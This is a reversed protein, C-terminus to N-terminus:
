RPALAATAAGGDELLWRALMGYGALNLHKRDRAALLPSLQGEPTTLPARETKVFAMGRERALEAIRSNVWRLEELYPPRTECTPPLEIVAVGVGPYRAAIVGSVKDLV